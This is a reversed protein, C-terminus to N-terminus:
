RRPILGATELEAQIDRFKEEVSDRFRVQNIGDFDSHIKTGEKLLLLVRERGLRGAFWGTEFIVNPRAQDCVGSLNNSVSDDPTLLSIAYSCTEALKEFKEITTQSQGPKSLIVIPNVGFDARLMEQLRLRNVEDHGHIIFVSNTKPHPSPLSKAVFPQSGNAVELEKVLRTVAQILIQPDEECPLSKSTAVLTRQLRQVLHGEAGFFPTLADRAILLSRMTRAKLENENNAPQQAVELAARLMDLPSRHVPTSPSPSLPM